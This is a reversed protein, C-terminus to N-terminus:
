KITIVSEHSLVITNPVVTYVQNNISYNTTSSMQQENSNDSPKKVELFTEDGNIM